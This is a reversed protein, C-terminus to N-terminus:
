RGRWCRGAVPSCSWPAPSPRLVMWHTRGGTGTLVQVAALATWAFLDCVAASTLAITGLRSGSMSRDTLIRALVPLATVSVAVALFLLLGARSAPHRERLLHLALLVGLAFPVAASGLLIAANLETM